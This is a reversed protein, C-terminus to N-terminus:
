FDELALLDGHLGAYYDIFNNLNNVEVNYPLREDFITTSTPQFYKEKIISYYISPPAPCNSHLNNPFVIETRV